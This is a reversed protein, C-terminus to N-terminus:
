GYFITAKKNNIFEENEWIGEIIDETNTRKFKGNGNKM